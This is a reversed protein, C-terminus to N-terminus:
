QDRGIRSELEEVVAAAFSDRSDHEAKERWDALQKDETWEFDTTPMWSKLSSSTEIRWANFGGHHVCLAAAESPEAM